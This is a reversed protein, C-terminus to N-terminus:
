LYALCQSCSVLCGNEMKFKTGMAKVVHAPDQPFASEMELVLHPSVVPWQKSSVFRLVISAQWEAM